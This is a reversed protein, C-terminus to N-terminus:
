GRLAQGRSRVFLCEVCVTCSFQTCLKGTRTSHELTSKLDRCIGYWFNHVCDEQVTHTSLELTNALDRVPVDAHALLAAGCQDRMATARCGGITFIFCLGTKSPCSWSGAYSLLM